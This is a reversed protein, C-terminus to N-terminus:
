DWFNFIVDGLRQPKWYLFQALEVPGLARIAELTPAEALQEPALVKVGAQVANGVEASDLFPEGMWAPQQAVVALWLHYANCLIACTGSRLHLEAWHFNPTVQNECSTVSTVQGHLIRATAHCVTKFAKSSTAPTYPSDDPAFGTIGRPLILPSM